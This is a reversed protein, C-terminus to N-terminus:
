DDLLSRIGVGVGMWFHQDESSAWLLSETTLFAKLEVNLFARKFKREACGEHQPYTSSSIISMLSANSRNLHIGFYRMRSILNSTLLIWFFNLFMQLLSKSPCVHTEGGTCWEM